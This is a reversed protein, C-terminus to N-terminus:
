PTRPHTAITHAALEAAIFQLRTHFGEAQLIQSSYVRVTGPSLALARAIQKHSQGTLLAARLAAATPKSLGTNTM